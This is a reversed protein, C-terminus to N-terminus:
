RPPPMNIQYTVSLNYRLPGTQQARWDDCTMISSQTGQRTGDAAFNFNVRTEMQCRDNISSINVIEPANANYWARINGINVGQDATRLWAEESILQAQFANRERGKWKKGTEPNIANRQLRANLENRTAVHGDYISLLQEISRWRNPGLNDSSTLLGVAEIWNEADLCQNYIQVANDRTINRLRRPAERLNADFCFATNEPNPATVPAGSNQAHLATPVSLTGLATVAVLGASFQHLRSLNM